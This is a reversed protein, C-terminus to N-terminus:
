LFRTSFSYEISPELPPTTFLRIREDHHDPDRGNQKFIVNLLSVKVL